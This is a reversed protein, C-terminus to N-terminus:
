LQYMNSDIRSHNNGIFANVADQPLAARAHGDPTRGSCHGRLTCYMTVSEQFFEYFLSTAYNVYTNAKLQLDQRARKPVVFLGKKHRGTAIDMIQFKFPFTTTWTINLVVISVGPETTRHVLPYYPDEKM